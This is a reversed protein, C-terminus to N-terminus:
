HEERDNEGVGKIIRDQLCGILSKLLVNFAISVCSSVLIIDEKNSTFENWCVKSDGNSLAKYVKDFTSELYDCFKNYTNEVSDIDIYYEIMSSIDAINMIPKLVSIIICYAIHTKNYKKRIPKPIAKSKVYNNVMNKTIAIEDGVIISGISDDVITILQESYIEFTPLDDWRPIKIRVSNNVIPKNNAPEM